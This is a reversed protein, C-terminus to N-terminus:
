PATAGLAAFAARAAATLQAVRERDPPSAALQAQALLTRAEALWLSPLLEPRDAASAVFVPLTPELVAAAEDHRGLRLLARGRLLEFEAIDRALWAKDGRHPELRALARTTVELVELSRDTHAAIFGLLKDRVHIDMATPALGARCELGQEASALARPVEGLFMEFHALLQFCLGCNIPVGGHVRKYEPCIAALQEAGERLTPAFLAAMTRRELTLLHRPGLRAALLETARAMGDRRQEPAATNTAANFIANSLEISDHSPTAQMEAIARAMSTSAGERDHLLLQAGSLNLEVLGRAAHPEPARSAMARALPALRMAEAPRGDQVGDVYLLRGMAEAALDDRRAEVAQSLAEVLAPRALKFAAQTFHIRAQVLLAEAFIPQFQTRRARAVADDAVTLAGSVDGADHRVRASILLSEIDAVEGAVAPDEPVAAESLVVAPDDCAAIAPLRAVLVAADPSIAADNRQAADPGDVGTALLQAATALTQRRRDLCRMRADLLASSQEGRHHDLCADRHSMLWADAYGDLGALALAPLGPDPATALADAIAQRRAPNWTAALEDPGGGCPESESRLAIGAGTLLGVGVLGLLWRRRIRTSDRALAALLVHMNPWRENPTRAMGRVLVQTLERPARSSRPPPLVQGALVAAILTEASDGAFARQGHLAEWLAVCFSFQDSSADAALGLHQEPSMFAPTGLLTGTMTLSRDLASRGPQTTAPDAPPEDHQRVLGFDAVRVRGDAGLLVNEPKFDRHVFGADHAAALGRGADLFVRLVEAPPRAQALWARLDVGQVLEMAIFIQGDISGTDHIQVVNPHSLRALAHAERLLRGPSGSSGDSRLLKLAVKRDLDPDYAALVVGMGGAGIQGLVHYRGLKGPLPRGGSSGGSGTAATADIEPAVDQTAEDSHAPSPRTAPLPRPDIAM